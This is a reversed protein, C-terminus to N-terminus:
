DDLDEEFQDCGYEGCCGEKPQELNHVRAELNKIQKDQIYFLMSTCIFAIGSLVAIGSISKAQKNLANAVKGFNQDVRVFNRETALLANLIIKEEM